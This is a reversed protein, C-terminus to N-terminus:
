HSCETPLFGRELLPVLALVALIWLREPCVPQNVHIQSVNRKVQKMEISERFTLKSKYREIPIYISYRKITDEFM